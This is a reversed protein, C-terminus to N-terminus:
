TYFIEKESCVNEQKGSLRYCTLIMMVEICVYGEANWLPTTSGVYIQFTKDLDLDISEM